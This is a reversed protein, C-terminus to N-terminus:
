DDEDNSVFVVKMETVVGRDRKIYVPYNGDGYGSSVVVGLGPAGHAYNLQTADDILMCCFKDWKRIPHSKLAAYCPDGVMVLGADVGIEGVRQWDNM